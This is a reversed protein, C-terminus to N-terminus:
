ISQSVWQWLMKASSKLLIGFPSKINLCSTINHLTQIHVFIYLM